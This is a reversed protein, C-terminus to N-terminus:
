AFTLQMKVSRGRDDAADFVGTAGRAKGEGPEDVDESQIRFDNTDYLRCVRVGM